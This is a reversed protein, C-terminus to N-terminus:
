HARALLFDVNGARGSREVKWRDPLSLIIGHPTELFVYAGPQLWGGAQLKLMCPEWLGHAFPPDIFVIDFPRGPGDLYALVNQNVITVAQASLRRAAESLVQVVKHDQEVMVVERAGRSAAEFGLVGTGAFLDLCRSGAILPQLWNFLTERVRDGSPRLTPVDLVPLRTRRWQGGIIRVSGPAKSHLAAVM